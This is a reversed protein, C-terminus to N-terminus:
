DREEQTLLISKVNADVRSQKKEITSLQGVLKDLQAELQGDESSSGTLKELTMSKKVPMM